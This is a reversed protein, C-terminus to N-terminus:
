VGVFYWFLGWFVCCVFFRFSGGEWGGFFFGFLLVVFLFGRCFRVFGGLCHFLFRSVIIMCVEAVKGPYDSCLSYSACISAVEWSFPVKVSHQKEEVKRTSLGDGLCTM